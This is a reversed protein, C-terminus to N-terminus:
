KLVIEFKNSPTEELELSHLKIQTWEKDLLNQIHVFMNCAINETTPPQLLYKVRITHKQFLKGLDDGKKLVALNHWNNKFFARLQEHIQEYKEKSLPSRFQLTIGWTHGHPDKCLDKHWELRHVFNVTFKCKDRWKDRDLLPPLKHCHLELPNDKSIVRNEFALTPSMRLYLFRLFENEDWKLWNRIRDFLTRTIDEIQTTTLEVISIARDRLSRIIPHGSPILMKHDFDTDVWRILKKLMSFDLIMGTEEDITGGAGAEVRITYGSLHPTKSIVGVSFHHPTKISINSSEKLQQLNM